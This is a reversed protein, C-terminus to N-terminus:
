RNQFMLWLVWAPVESVPKDGYEVLVWGYGFAIALVFVLFIIPILLTIYKDINEIFEKIKKM